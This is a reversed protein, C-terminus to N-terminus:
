GLETDDVEALVDDGSALKRRVLHSEIVLLTVVVAIGLLVLLVVALVDDAPALVDGEESQWPWLARLSGLMLGTMVALTVSRRHELLWQLLPVFAALGAIAGLVFVGLYVFDRDNVAGLTPAYMGVALLLFSGSVGPLVLACVAVAAALAVLWLAPDQDAGPPVGTLVFAAAAALVAVVVDGSRWRGVMRIPVVLSALILGTFVARTEVPRSELLPALIAAAGFIAVFMGAIVPLVVAWKVQALHERARTAGRRRVGDVAGAVLGRVLHGASGIVDDYVGVILAITGGSVGPVVEATGILVGRLADIAARAVRM